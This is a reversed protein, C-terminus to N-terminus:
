TFPSTLTSSKRLASPRTSYWRAGVPLHNRKRKLRGRLVPPLAPPLKRRGHLMSAVLNERLWWSELLAALVHVAVLALLTDALWDHIDQLWEEGWYRDIETMMFGTVGLALTLSLMLIMVMAGLPSHGLARWPQRALLLGLHHRVRQPTPLCHSWRAAGPAVFGWVFRVLVASAAAYGLWAHVDDGEENLFYNCFFAVVLILHCGRIVRDWLLVSAGPSV